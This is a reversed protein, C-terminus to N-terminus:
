RQAFRARMKSPANQSAHQPAIRAPATQWGDVSARPHASRPIREFIRVNVTVRMQLM